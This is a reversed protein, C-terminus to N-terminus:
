VLCGLRQGLAKLIPISRWNNALANQLLGPTDPTDGVQAKLM